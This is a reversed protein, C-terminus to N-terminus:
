QGGFGLAEAARFARQATDRGLSRIVEDRKEFLDSILVMDKDLLM